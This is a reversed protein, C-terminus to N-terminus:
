VVIAKDCMGQFVSYVSLEAMQYRVTSNSVDNFFGYVIFLVSTDAVHTIFRLLQYLLANM